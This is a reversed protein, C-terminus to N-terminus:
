DVHQQEAVIQTWEHAVTHAKDQDRNDKYKDDVIRDDHQEERTLEHNQDYTSSVVPSSVSLKTAFYFRDSIM